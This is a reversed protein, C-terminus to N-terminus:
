ELTAKVEVIRNEKRLEDNECDGKNRIGGAIAIIRNESIGESILLGRIANARNMDLDDWYGPVHVYSGTVCEAGNSARYATIEVKESQNRKLEDLLESLVKKAKEQNLFDSTDAIFEIDEGSFVRGEGCFICSTTKIPTAKVKHQTDVSDDNDMTEFPPYKFMKAGQEELITRYIEQLNEIQQPDLSQQPSSTAGLGTWFITIGSLRDESIAHRKELAELVAESNMDLLSVESDSFNLKGSDSLGSGIVVLLVKEDSEKDALLKNASSYITELYEAGDSEPPTDLAEELREFENQVRKKLKNTDVDGEKCETNEYAIKKKDPAVSSLQIKPCGGIYSNAVIKKLKETVRPKPTNATNGVVFYIRDFAFDKQAECGFLGAGVSIEDCDDKNKSVVIAGLIFLVGCVALTILGGTLIAKKRARARAGGGRRRGM